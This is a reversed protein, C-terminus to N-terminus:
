NFFNDYYNIIKSCVGTLTMLGRCYRDTQGQTTICTRTLFDIIYEESKGAKIMRRIMNVGVKCANCTPSDEEHTEIEKMVRDLNLMQSMSKIWQVVHGEALANDLDEILQTYNM